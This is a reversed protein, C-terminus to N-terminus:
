KKGWAGIMIMVLFLALAYWGFNNLFVESTTLDPNQLPYVVGKWIGITVSSFLCLWFLLMQAIKRKM